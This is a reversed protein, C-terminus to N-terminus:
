EKGEESKKKEERLRQMLNKKEDKELTFRLEEPQAPWENNTRDSDAIELNPDLEISVVKKNSVLLKSTEQSDRKWLEAPLRMIKAEGDEYLVKLVVPMVLGGENTLDIQYFYRNEELIEREHEELKKLFDQFDDRDKKTVGYEGNANYFDLLDPYRDTYRKIGINRQNTLLKADEEEREAKERTKEIDPDKTDMQYLKVGKIALDVHESTYFWGTWFWDLDVGSADEMTRFFDAPTPRKFKWRNAYEKFAYDFNERGLVSERLINLAVAPKAYANSGFYRLSESNTMIPMEDDRKMYSAISPPMGRRSPYKEEWEREALFQCFTTLGEDMWTWQREDSNVIMPFWNHGVEHIVVSILAYKTRRSYTGDDEPRPGNFCIMPYEMGFVPGHVSIAVPYPYDFTHKSFVQLAHIVSHTSYKSWLPEGENPFFSMAWVRDARSGVKVHAADWVFKRSSAWAFDRVNEARFVWTKSGEAKSKENEKAEAPTVVYTPEDSGEAQKLREQQVNSLVEGPNALTGTAAVIHDAPVTLSVEYDGFELAFEGRGLFQKNQWGNIDTFAAIRPYWQAITYIYNDDEKFYEYGGRARIAKANVINHEWDIGFTTTAGPKVSVEVRMMTDIISYSLPQRSDDHVSKIQYGGEFDERSLEGRLTRFGISDFDPAEMAQHGLAQQEFRNQDLQVWLYTLAISSNNTYAITESGSIRQEKDDLVVKIKYDARQQWYEPGPAGNAARIENPDPLLEDIQRFPDKAYHGGPHAAGMLSLLATLACALLLKM